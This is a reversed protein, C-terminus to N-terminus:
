PKYIGNEIQDAIDDEVKINTSKQIGFHITNM